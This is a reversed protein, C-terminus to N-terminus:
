SYYANYVDKEYSFIAFAIFLRFRGLMLEYAYVAFAGTNRHSGFPPSSARCFLANFFNLRMTTAPPVLATLVSVALVM